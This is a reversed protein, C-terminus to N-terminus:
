LKHESALSADSTKTRGLFCEVAPRQPHPHTRQSCLTFNVAVHSMRTALARRLHIRQQSSQAFHQHSTRIGLVSSM